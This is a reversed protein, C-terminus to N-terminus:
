QVRRRRRQGAGGPAPLVAPRVAGTAFKANNLLLNYLALAWYDAPGPYCYHLCDLPFETKWKAGYKGTTASYRMSTAVHGDARADVFSVNLVSFRWSVSPNKSAGTSWLSEFMPPGRWNYKDKFMDVGRKTGLQPPRWEFIDSKGDTLREWAERRSRLPRTDKQCGHHGVNTTRFILHATPKMFRGLGRLAMKVLGGYRTFAPDVSHYHHGMNFVIVDAEEVWRRWFAGSINRLEWALDGHRLVKTITGGSRLHAQSSWGGENGASTECVGIRTSGRGSEGPAYGFLDQQELLSDGLLWVFSYYAQATLSDGLFLLNRKGLWRDFVEGRVPSLACSYPRWSWTIAQLSRLRETASQRYCLRYDYWGQMAPLARKYAFHDPRTILRPDCTQMWRGRLHDGDMSCMPRKDKNKSGVESSMYECFHPNKNSKASNAAGHRSVGQLWSGQIVNMDSRGYSPPSDGAVPARSASLWLEDLHVILPMQNPAVTGAVIVLEDMTRLHGFQQLPIQMHQWRQSDATSVLPGQRQGCLPVFYTDATSSQQMRMSVCVPGECRGRAPSAACQLPVAASLTFALSLLLPATANSIVVPESARLMLPQDGQKFTARISQGCPVRQSMSLRGIDVAADFEPQVGEPAAAWRNHLSDDFVVLLPFSGDNTPYADLKHAQM